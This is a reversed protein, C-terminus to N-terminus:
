RLAEVIKEVPDKIVFAISLESRRLFCINLDGELLAGVIL